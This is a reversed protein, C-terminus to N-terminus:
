LTNLKLYFFLFLIFESQWFLIFLSVYSISLIQQNTNDDASIKRPTSNKFAHTSAQVTKNFLFTKNFFFASSFYSPHMQTNGGSSQASKCIIYHRCHRFYSTLIFFYVVHHIGKSQNKEKKKKRWFFIKKKSHKKRVKGKSNQKKFKEKFSM